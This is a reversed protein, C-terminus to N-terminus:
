GLAGRWGGVRLAAEPLRRCALRAPGGVYSCVSLPAPAAADFCFSPQPPALPWGTRGAREARGGAPVTMVIVCIPATRYGAPESFLAAPKLIDCSGFRAPQERGSKGGARAAWARSREAASARASGGPRRQLVDRGLLVLHPLGGARRHRPARRCHAVPEDGEDDDVRHLLVRSYAPGIKQVLFPRRHLGSQHTVRSTNVRRRTMKTLTRSSREARKRRPRGTRQPRQRQRSATRRLAKAKAPRQRQRAARRRATRSRSRPLPPLTRRATMVTWISTMTARPRPRRRTRSPRPPQRRPRPQRSRRQRPSTTVATMWIWITSIM